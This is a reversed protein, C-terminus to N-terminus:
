RKDRGFSQTDKLSDTRQPAPDAPSRGAGAPHTFFSIGVSFAPPKPPRKHEILSVCNKWTHYLARRPRRMQALAKSNACLALADRRCHLHLHARNALRRPTKRLRKAPRPKQKQMSRLMNPKHKSSTSQQIELPRKANSEIADVRRHKPIPAPSASARARSAPGSESKGASRLRPSFVGLM